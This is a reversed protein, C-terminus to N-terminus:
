RVTEGKSVTRVPMELSYGQQCGECVRSPDTPDRILLLRMVIYVHITWIIRRRIRIQASVQKHITGWIRQKRLDLRAKAM